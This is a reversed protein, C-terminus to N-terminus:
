FTNLPSLRSVWRPSLIEHQHPFDGQSPQDMAGM